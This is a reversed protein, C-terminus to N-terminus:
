HNPGFNLHELFITVRAKRRDYCAGFAYGVPYFAASVLGIVGLEVVAAMICTM